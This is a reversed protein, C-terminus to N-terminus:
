VDFVVEFSYGGGPRTELKLNHFTVSKIDRKFFDIKCGSFAVSLSLNDELNFEHLANLEISNILEFTLVKNLLSVILYEMKTSKFEFRVSDDINKLRRNPSLLFNLGSVCAITLDRFDDGEARLRLDADHELVEFRSM